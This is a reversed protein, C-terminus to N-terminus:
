FEPWVMAISYRQGLAHLHAPCHTHACAATAAAKEIGLRRSWTLSGTDHGGPKRAENRRRRESGGSCRTGKGWVGSHRARGLGLGGPLAKRRLIETRTLSVLLLLLCQVLALQLQSMLSNKLRTEEKWRIVKAPKAALAAAREALSKTATFAM